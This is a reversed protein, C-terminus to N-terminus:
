RADDARPKPSLAFAITGAALMAAVTGFVAAFTPVGWGAAASAVAGTLWQMVAVGLFMAMTYLSIARGAMAAPYAGRAETYLLISYGSLLAFVPIGIATFLAGPDAALVLFFAVAGLSFAVIVKRRRGPGPDMRGFAPPGFLAALTAAVAVNGAQVLTFGYREVMMPALWLGRLTVFSAYCVGGIAVIGWTHPMRLLAVFGRLADRLTQPALGDGRAPERVLRHIALWSLVSLGGLVGFGARWSSAEILWALPTGTLLMGITGVAMAIGSIAAFREGPFSRSIFVTSAVFAPSCGIGIMAQGLLLVAFNPALAAVAAGAIALPFVTLVTRRSGHLDVGIGMALMLAAFSFHFTAAFLGLAQASLGFEQQLSPAMISAVTRFAQSMAFASVLALLMTWRGPGAPASDADTSRPDASM